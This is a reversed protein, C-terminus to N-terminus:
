DEMMLRNFLSYFHRIVTELPVWAPADRWPTTTSKAIVAVAIDKAFSAAFMKRKEREAKALNAPINDMNEM